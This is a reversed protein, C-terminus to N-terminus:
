ESEFAMESPDKPDYWVKVRMGPQYRPLLVPSLADKLTGRPGPPQGERELELTFDVVPDHNMRDGTDRAEIVRAVAETGTTRLRFARLDWYLPPGLSWVVVPLVFLLGLLPRRSPKAPAATNPESDPDSSM